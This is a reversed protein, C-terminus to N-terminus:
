HSERVCDAPLSVETEIVIQSDAITFTFPLCRELEDGPPLRLESDFKCTSKGLNKLVVRRTAVRRFQLQERSIWSAESPFLVLRRSQKDFYVPKFEDRRQRGIQFSTAGIPTSRLSGTGTASKVVWREIEDLDNILRDSVDPDISYRRQFESITPGDGWASECFWLGRVLANYHRLELDFGFSKLRDLYFGVFDGHPPDPPGRIRSPTRGVGSGSWIRSVSISRWILKGRTLWNRFSKRSFM